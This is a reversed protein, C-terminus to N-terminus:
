LSIKVSDGSASSLYVQNASTNFWGGTAPTSTTTSSLLGAGSVGGGTFVLPNKEIKEQIDEREKKGKGRVKNRLEEVDDKSLQVEPSSNIFDIVRKIDEESVGVDQLILRSEEKAMLVERAIKKLTALQRMLLHMKVAREAKRVQDLIDDKKEEPKAENPKENNM